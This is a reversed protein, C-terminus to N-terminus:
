LQLASGFEVLSAFPVVGFVEGVRWGVGVMNFGDQEIVPQQQVWFRKNPNDLQKQAMEAMRKQTAQTFDGSKGVRAPPYRNVNEIAYKLGSQDAKGEQLSPGWGFLCQQKIPFASPM